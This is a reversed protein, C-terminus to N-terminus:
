GARACSVEGVIAPFPASGPDAAHSVGAKTSGIFLTKLLHIRVFRQLEQLWMARLRRRVSVRCLVFGKDTWQSYAIERDKKVLNGRKCCPCAKDEKKGPM